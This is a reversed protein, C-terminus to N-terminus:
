NVLPKIVKKWRKYGKPALHLGDYTYKPKLVGKANRFARHLDIYSVGMEESLTELRKNVLLILQQNSKHGSFKDGVQPNVPLISQVFIQTDASAEQIKRLLVTVNEVVEDASKGRALDNTGVLLFIKKPRSSTVESLRNLIGDTVDGSIGRNVVNKNPFMAKWDGGETISNGLFIIEGETDPTNEFMAKRQYYHESYKQANIAVTFLCCLIFILLKSM